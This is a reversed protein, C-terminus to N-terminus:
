TIHTQSLRSRVARFDGRMYPKNKLLFHLYQQYTAYRVYAVFHDVDMWGVQEVIRTNFGGPHDNERVWSQWEPTTAVNKIFQHRTKKM